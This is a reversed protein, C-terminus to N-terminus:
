ATLSARMWDTHPYSPRSRTWTTVQSRGCNSRSSSSAATGTGKTRNAGKRRGTSPSSTRLPFARTVLHLTFLSSNNESSLPSVLSSFPDSATAFKESKTKLKESFMVEPDYLFADELPTAFACRAWDKCSADIFDLVGVKDAIYQQAAWIVDHFNKCLPYVAEPIEYVARLGEGSISPAILAPRLGDAKWDHAAYFARPDGIHDFDLMVLGTPVAYRNDRKAPKDGDRFGANYMIVPAQEKANRVAWEHYSVAMKGDGPRWGGNVKVLDVLDRLEKSSLLAEYEERTLERPLENTAVRSQYNPRM